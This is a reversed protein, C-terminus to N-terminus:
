LFHITCTIDWILLITRISQLCYFKRLFISSILVSYGLQHKPVNATCLNKNQPNSTPHWSSIKKKFILIPGLTSFKKKLKFLLIHASLYTLFLIAFLLKIWSRTWILNSIAETKYLIITSIIVNGSDYRKPRLPMM